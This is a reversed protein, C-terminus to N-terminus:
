KVVRLLLKLRAKAADIERQETKQSTKGTITHIVYIASELKAIYILRYQGKTDDDVLKIEEVGSGIQSMPRYHVPKAGLQVRTLEKGLDEKVGQPWAHVEKQLSQNAWKVPKMQFQEEM